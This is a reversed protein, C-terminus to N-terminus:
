CASAALEVKPRRSLTFLLGAAALLGGAVPIAAYGYGASLVAGGLAAGVANGLNFAGINISSALGPAEAAAQMVRMQVPPVIAFAAAGWVLLSILAGVPSSLALPLAFSVIALMGLFIRTAGNLSWDALRGGLANGITFGVGIMVLALTVFGESAGTRDALVAAVYTYLTFMAGAGMVTTALSKLVTPRMLVGLEQRINPMKGAEGRPLSLWLATIAVLGLVATGAFSMRWGIQQGIWTAAPVGGINAITLGMFMTAVASARKEPPVVSAAVISGLGFFAGHNLSTVLRAALLTWYDPAFASLINGITFIAMLLMLATRKGFRGFALTMIPAGITVGIAYASVLLGATPISVNVGDAIVPLLGMPAFETTGIGFAGIALALLPWNFGSAANVAGQTNVANM